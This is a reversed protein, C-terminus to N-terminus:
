LTQPRGASPLRPLRGSGRPPRRAAAAAPWRATASPPAQEAPRSASKLFDPKPFEIKEAVFRRPRVEDVGNATM